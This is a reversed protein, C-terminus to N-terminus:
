FPTVGKWPNPLELSSNVIQPLEPNVDNVTDHDGAQKVLTPLRSSRNDPSGSHIYAGSFEIDKFAFNFDILDFGTLLPRKWRIAPRKKGMRASETVFLIMRMASPVIVATKTERSKSLNLYGPNVVHANRVKWM